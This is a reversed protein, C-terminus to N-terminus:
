QMRMIILVMYKRIHKEVELMLPFKISDLGAEFLRTLLEENALSGNTTIFSYEYGLKKLINWWNLFGKIYYPNEM